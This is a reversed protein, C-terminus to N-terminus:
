EKFMAEAHKFTAMFLLKQTWYFVSNYRYTIIYYGHIAATSHIFALTLCLLFTCYVYLRIVQVDGGFFVLVPPPLSPTPKSPHVYIIENALGSPVTVLGLRVPSADAQVSHSM